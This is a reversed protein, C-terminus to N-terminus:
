NSSLFKEHDNEGDVFAISCILLKDCKGTVMHGFGDDNFMEDNEIFMIVDRNRWEEPITLFYYDEGINYDPVGPIIIWGTTPDFSDGIYSAKDELTRRDDMNTTFWEETQGHVDLFVQQSYDNRDVLRVRFKAMGSTYQDAQTRLQLRITTAGEPTHITNFLYANTQENDLPWDWTTFVVCWGGDEIYSGNGQNPNQKCNWTTGDVNTGYLGIKSISDYEQKSYFASGPKVQPNDNFNWYNTTDVTTQLESELVNLGDIIYGAEPNIKVNVKKEIDDCKVTIVVDGVGNIKLFANNGDSAEIDCIEPNSSSFQCTSSTGVPRPEAVFWLSDFQKDDLYFEYVYGDKKAAGNSALRVVIDEAKPQAITMKVSGKIEPDSTSTATITYEADHSVFENIVVLGQASIAVFEDAPSIEWVVTKTTADSPEVIIESSLDLTGGSGSLITAQYSDQKFSISGVPIRANVTVEISDSVEGCTATITTTGGAVFSVVGKDTVTAVSPNSSTWVVTKDTADSPRVTATLTLNRNGTMVSLKGNNVGTGSISIGTAKINDVDPEQEQCACAMLLCVALISILVVILIRKKM